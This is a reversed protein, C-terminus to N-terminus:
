SVMKNAETFAEKLEVFFPILNRLMEADKSINAETLTRRFYDYLAALNSSIDYKMKLTSDLTEVIKTTKMISKHANEYDKRDIYYIAKNLEIECKEYLKVLLQGPTLTSVSQEMFKQYPNYAM